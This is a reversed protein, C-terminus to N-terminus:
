LRVEIRGDRTRVDFRRVPDVAPGGLAKGTRVDFKAGHARCIIEFGIQRGGELPFELHSCRNEIAFLKTGFRFILISRGAVVYARHKGNAIDAFACVDVYDTM